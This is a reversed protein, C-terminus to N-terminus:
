KKTKGGKSMKAKGGCKMKCGKKGCAECKDDDDEAMKGKGKSPKGIMIVVGGKSMKSEKGFAKKIAKNAKM